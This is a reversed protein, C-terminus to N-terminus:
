YQMGRKLAVFLGRLESKLTEKDRLSLLYLIEADDDYGDFMSQKMFGFFSFYDDVENPVFSSRTEILKKFGLRASDYIKELARSNHQNEFVEHRIRTYNFSPEDPEGLSFNDELSVYLLLAAAHVAVVIMTAFHPM